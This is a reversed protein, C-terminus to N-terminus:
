VFNMVYAGTADPRLALHYVGVNSPFSGHDVSIILEGTVSSRKSDQSIIRKLSSALQFTTGDIEVTSSAKRRESKEFESQLGRCGCFFMQVALLLSFLRLQKMITRLNQLSPFSRELKFQSSRIILNAM